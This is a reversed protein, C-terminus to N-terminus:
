SSAGAVCIRELKELTAAMAARWTEGDKVARRVREPARSCDYIETVLTAEGHPTLEYTWRSGARTGPSPVNAAREVRVAEPEWAIKRGPEFEVVHNTVVYDGFSDNHMRMGFTDGAKEIVRRAVPGRLMGSGDLESHRAPDSLVAFLIEAPASIVRSVSIPETM